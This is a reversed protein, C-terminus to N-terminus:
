DGMMTMSQQAFALDKKIHWQEGSACGCTM